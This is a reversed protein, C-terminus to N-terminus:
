PIRHILRAPQGVADHWLLIALHDGIERFENEFERVFEERQRGADGYVLALAAFYNARELFLRLHRLDERFDGLAAAESKVETVTLNRDMRGPVHVLLDPKLEGVRQRILPHARKDVEGNLMYPFGNPITLRLQHYLEYCYVRERYIPAEMGAIPLHYFQGEIGSTARRLADVFVELHEKM